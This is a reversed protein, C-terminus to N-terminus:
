QAGGLDIATEKFPAAIRGPELYNKLTERVTQSSEHQLAEAIVARMGPADMGWSAVTFAAELRVTDFRDALLVKKVFPLASPGLFKAGAVLAGRVSPDREIAYVDVMKPLAQAPDQFRLGFAATKRVPVAPDNELADVIADFVKPDATNGLAMVWQMRELVSPPDKQPSAGSGTIRPTATTVLNQVIEAAVEPSSDGLANASGGLAVGIDSQSRGHIKRMLELMAAVYAPSPQSMLTAAVLVRGRLNPRTAADGVLDVIADEAARTGASALAEIATREAVESDKGQQLRKALRDALTPDSQLAQTLKRRLAARAHMDDTEHLAGAAELVADYADDGVKAEPPKRVVTVNMPKLAAPDLGAAWAPSGGGSHNLRVANRFPAPTVVEGFQLTVAGDQLYDVRSLAGRGDDFAFAVHTTHSLGMMAAANSEGDAPSLTWTKEVAQGNVTTYAALYPGNADQENVEWDSVGAEDPRVFQLAHALTAALTQAGVPTPASFKLALVRGQEDLRVLWPEALGEELPEGQGILDEAPANVRVQSGTLRMALWSVNRTGPLAAIELQGTVSTVAEGVTNAAAQGFPTMAGRFNLTFHEARAHPVLMRRTDWVSGPAAAAPTTSAVEPTSAGTSSPDGQGLSLSLAILAVGAAVAGLARLDFRQTPNM